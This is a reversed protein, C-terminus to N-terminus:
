CELSFSQSSPLYFRSDCFFSLKLKLSCKCLFRSRFISVDSCNLSFNCSNTTTDVGFPQLLVLEVVLDRGECSFNAIEITGALFPFSTVQKCEFAEVLLKLLNLHSKALAAVLSVCVTSGDIVHLLQHSLGSKRL